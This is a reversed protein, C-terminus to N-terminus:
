GAERIGVDANRLANDILAVEIALGQFPRV